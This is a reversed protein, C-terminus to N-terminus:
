ALEEKAFWSLLRSVYESLDIEEPYFFPAPFVASSIPPGGDRFDEIKSMLADEAFDGYQRNITIKWEDTTKESVVYNHAGFLKVLEQVKFPKPPFHLVQASFAVSLLRSSLAIEAVCAGILDVPFIEWSKTVVEKPICRCNLCSLFFKCDLQDTRFEGTGSNPGAQPIRISVARIGLETSAKQVLIEAVLKSKSYPDMENESEMQSEAVETPLRETREGSGVV